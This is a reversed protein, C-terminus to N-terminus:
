SATLWEPVIDRNISDEVPIRARIVFFGEGNVLVEPILPRSNYGSAMVAGYAGTSRFVLLDGDSLQPLERGRAFTDGSECIPGVIDVASTRANEAPAIVPEIEHHAGYMAPRLLDNMASDLVLIDRAEGTKRYLVSSVMVGANGSIFRGPEVDVEVGLHGLTDALLACYEAPSPAADESPRYNIGLGGGADIRRIEHGDDRLVRTLDALLRFVRRFPALDMVQSGIHVDIGVVRIGPLHGAERYADRVRSVPIGFKDGSKGTSIKEHTGPDVDPNIRIAIPAVTGLSEAVESLLRLEPESEVNFHRIGGRLAAAMEDRTKGVGSFVIRDGPIGAARARVYEGGSVVDMGAGLNGLLRLVAVNSNAKVSYCVLHDIGSLASQFAGLNAAFMRSSYLYFPTGVAKAIEPIPVDEAHLIGDRYQFEDIVGVGTATGPM